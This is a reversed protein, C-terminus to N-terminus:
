KEKIQLDELEIIEFLEPNVVHKYIKEEIYSKEGTRPNYRPIKRVEVVTLEGISNVVHSKQTYIRAKKINDTLIRDKLDRTTIYFSYHYRGKRLYKGSPIHKVIYM